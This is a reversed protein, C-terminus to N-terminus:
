KEDYRPPGQTWRKWEATTKGEPKIPLWWISGDDCLGLIHPIVGASEVLQIQILKRGGIM